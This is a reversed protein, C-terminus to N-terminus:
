ADSALKSLCYAPNGTENLLKKWYPIITQTLQQQRFHEVLHESFIEKLSGEEFPMNRIDAVVDVRPLEERDVNIYGERPKEGCGLNLSLGEPSAAQKQAFTAEDVIYPENSAGTDTGESNADLLERVQMSIRMLRDEGIQRDKQLSKRETGADDQRDELTAQRKELTTVLESIRRDQYRQYDAIAHTHATQDLQSQM